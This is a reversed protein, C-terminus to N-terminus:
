IHQCHVADFFYKQGHALNPLASVTKLTKANQRGKEIACGAFGKRLELFDDFCKTRM